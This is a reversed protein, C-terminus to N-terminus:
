QNSGIIEEFVDDVVPVAAKGPITDSYIIGTALKNIKQFSDQLFLGHSTMAYVNKIGRRRLNDAARIMTGGSSIMDDALIVTSSTITLHDDELTDVPRHVVGETKKNYQNTRNKKMTGETALYSAGSDPGIIQYPESTLTQLHSLLKKQVLYNKIRLGEVTTQRSGKMFHCDITHLRTVGSDSLLKCLLRSTIVEGRLHAKDQRAYPLYPVLLDVSKVGRDKLTAALFLLRLIQESQNPYLYHCIFVRKGKLQSADDVLCHIEGDPFNSFSVKVKNAPKNQGVVLRTPPHKHNHGKNM